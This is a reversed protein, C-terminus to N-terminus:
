RMIFFINTKEQDSNFRSTTEISIQTPRGYSWFITISLTRFATEPISRHVGNYIPQCM